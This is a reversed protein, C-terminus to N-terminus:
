SHVNFLGFLQNLEHVFALLLYAHIENLYRILTILQIPLRQLQHVVEHPVLHSLDITNCANQIMNLLLLIYSSLSVPFKLLLIRFQHLDMLLVLNLFLFLKFLSFLHTDLLFLQFPLVFPSSLRQHLLLPTEVVMM